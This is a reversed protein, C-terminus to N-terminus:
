NKKGAAQRRIFTLRAPCIDDQKLTPFLVSEDLTTCTENVVNTKMQKRDLFPARM